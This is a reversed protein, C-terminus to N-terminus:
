VLIGPHVSVALLDEAAPARSSSVVDYTKTKMAAFGSCTSKLSYSLFINKYCTTVQTNYLVAIKHCIEEVNGIM